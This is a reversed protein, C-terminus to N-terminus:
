CMYINCIYYIDYTNYVPHRAVVYSLLKETVIKQCTTM